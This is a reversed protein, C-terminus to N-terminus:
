RQANNANNNNNKAKSARQEHQDIQANENGFWCDDWCYNWQFSFFHLFRPRNISWKIELNWLVNQYSITSFKLINRFKFSLFNLPSAWSLYQTWKLIFWFRFIRVQSFLFTIIPEAGTGNNITRTMIKYVKYMNVINCHKFHM